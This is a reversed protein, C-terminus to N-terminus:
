RAPQGGMMNKVAGIVATLIAGAVGGGVAQGLLAGVDVNGGAGALLPILDYDKLAGGAASGGLVGAILQVILNIVAGSM